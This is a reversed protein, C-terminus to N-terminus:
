SMEAHPEGIASSRGPLPYLGMLGYPEETMGLSLYTSQARKNDHEVYLRLGIVSPDVLAMDHLHQYIARFVGRRRFEEQVYVSQIWWYWGNRWDSWEYTILIQGVIQGDIVAVTYFGKHPDGLVAHVGLTLVAQDLKKAESEWALAANFRVITPSDAPTARRISLDSPM